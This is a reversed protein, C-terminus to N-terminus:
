PRSKPLGGHTVVLQRILDEASFRGTLLGRQGLTYLELAAQFTSTYQFALEVSREIAGRVPKPAVDGLGDLIILLYMALEDAAEPRKGTVTAVLDGLGYDDFLDSSSREPDVPEQEESEPHSTITGSAHQDFPKEESSENSPEPKRQTTM